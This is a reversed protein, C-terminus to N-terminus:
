FRSELSFERHACNVSSIKTQPIRAGSAVSEKPYMAWWQPRTIGQSSFSDNVNRPSSWIVCAGLWENMPQDTKRVVSCTDLQIGCFTWLSITRQNTIHHHLFTSISLLSPGNLSSSPSSLQLPQDPRVLDFVRSSRSDDQANAQHLHLSEDVHWVTAGVSSTTWM